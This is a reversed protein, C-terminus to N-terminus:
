KIVYLYVVWLYLFVLIARIGILTAPNKTLFAPLQKNKGAAFYIACLVNIILFPTVIHSLDLYRM